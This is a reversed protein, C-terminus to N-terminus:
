HAALQRTFTEPVTTPLQCAGNECLYATAKGDQMTANELSPHYRALARLGDDGDALLVVKNPVVPRYIAALFARMDARQRSGVVVIQRPPQALFDLAVLMLPMTQALRLPNQAAAFAAVM